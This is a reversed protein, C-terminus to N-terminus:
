ASRSMNWRLSFATVTEVSGIFEHPEQGPATNDPSLVYLATQRRPRSIPAL